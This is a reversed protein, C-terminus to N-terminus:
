FWASKGEKVDSFIGMVFGNQVFLLTNKDEFKPVNVAVCEDFFAL